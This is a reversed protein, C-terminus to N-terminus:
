ENGYGVPTLPVFAVTEVESTDNPRPPSVSNIQIDAGKWLSAYGVPYRITNGLPTVTAEYQATKLITPPVNTEKYKTMYAAVSIAGGESGHFRTMGVKTIGSIKITSTIKYMMMLGLIMFIFLFLLVTVFV